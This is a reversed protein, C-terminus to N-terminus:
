ILSIYPVEIEVEEEYEEEVEKDVMRTKIIPEEIEREEYTGAITKVTIVKKDVGDQYQEEVQITVTRLSKQTQMEKRNKIKFKPLETKKKIAEVISNYAEESAEIKDSDPRFIKKDKTYGMVEQTEKNIFIYM